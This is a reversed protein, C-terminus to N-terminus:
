NQDERTPLNSVLSGCKLTVMPFSIWSSRLANAANQLLDLHRVVEELETPM